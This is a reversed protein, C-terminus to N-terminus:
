LYGNDVFWRYADEIAKELPTAPLDLERRAKSPDFYHDVFGMRASSWNVSEPCAGLRGFLNGYLSGAAGAALAAFRPIRIRPPPVGVVGAVRSFIEQYTLNENGLIYLEGSRGKEMASVAGSAVDRVDVFNNGGTTYGKARGRAVQLILTGSSPKVDYPGLMFTPNVVVVEMAGSAAFGLAVRQAEHKTQMYPIKLWDNQYAVGEHSPKHRTGWGEPTQFGIADVTSMHVVRRVGAAASLELVNRTGDVNVRRMQEPDPVWMTVMAACHYVEKVGQLAKGLSPRDLIDGHVPEVGALDQVAALRSRPRVLIRVERGQCALERVLNGGALGTAGTVLIAAGVQRGEQRDTSSFRKLSRGRWM